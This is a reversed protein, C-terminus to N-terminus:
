TAEGLAGHDFAQSSTGDFTFTNGAPFLSWILQAGVGAAHARQIMSAIIQATSSLLAGYTTLTFAAPQFEVLKQKLGPPGILAVIAYIQEALGSSKNAKIIAKLMLRYQEDVVFKARPQVLIKGIQDLQAGQATDISRFALLQYFVDELDQYPQLLVSFMKQISSTQYETPLMALFRAVKTTDHISDAFDIIPGTPPSTPNLFEDLIEQSSLVVDELNIEDVVGNFQALSAAADNNSGAMWKGNAGYDAPGGAALSGVFQGDVYGSITAGDYTMALMHWANLTLANQAQLTQLVGAVAVSFNPVASNAPFSIGVSM